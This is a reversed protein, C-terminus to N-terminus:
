WVYLLGQGGADKTRVFGAPSATNWNGVVFKPVARCRGFSRGWGWDWLNQSRGIHVGKGDFVSCRKEISYEGQGTPRCTGGPGAPSSSAWRGV